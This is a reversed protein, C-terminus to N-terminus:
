AREPLDPSATCASYIVRARDEFAGVMRHVAENFLPGMLTSLLKSRFEFEIYFDVECGEATPIFKWNNILYKFPGKQYEVDIRDPRMLTVKSTFTERVMRFGVMVDAYIINEERRYIRAGRCWPLFLPYSEIDAILDFM